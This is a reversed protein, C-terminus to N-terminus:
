VNHKSSDGQRREAGSERQQALNPSSPALFQQPCYLEIHPTGSRGLGGRRLSGVPAPQCTPCVYSNIAGGVQDAMTALIRVM